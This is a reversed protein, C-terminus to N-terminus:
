PNRQVGAQTAGTQLYGTLRERYAEPIRDPHMITTYFITFYISKLSEVGVKLIGGAVIVLYLAILPPLWSVLHGSIHWSLGHFIPGILYGIGIGIALLILSPFFLLNKVMNGALDIGFVGVLTAPVNNRLAKIDTVCEKLPKGEIVVAPIMYNNLLDWVEALASMLLSTILGTIGQQNERQKTAYSVFLDVFSLFMLGSTRRRTHRAADGYIVPEGISSQYTIRSMVAKLYTRAFFRLPVLVVLLIAMCIFGLMIAKGSFFCGLAVIFLTSMLVSLLALRVMPKKIGSKEGILTFSSKLLQVTNKLTEQMSRKLFPSSTVNAIM